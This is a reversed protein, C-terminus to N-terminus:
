TPIRKDDVGEGASKISRKVMGVWNGTSECLIEMRCCRYLSPIMTHVPMKKKKKLCVSGALALLSTSGERTEEDAEVVFFDIM